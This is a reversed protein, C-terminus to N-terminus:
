SEKSGILMVSRHLSTNQHTKLHHSLKFSKGCPECRYNYFFSWSIKLFILIIFFLLLFKGILDKM